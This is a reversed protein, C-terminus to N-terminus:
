KKFVCSLINKYPKDTTRVIDEINSSCIFEYGMRNCFEVFKENYLDIDIQKLIRAVIFEIDCITVFGLSADFKKYAQDEKITIM